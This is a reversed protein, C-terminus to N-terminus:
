SVWGSGLGWYEAISPASAADDVVQVDVQHEDGSVPTAHEVRLHEVPAFLDHRLDARVEFCGQSLEVSLFVM